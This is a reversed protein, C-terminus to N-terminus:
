KQRLKLRSLLSNKLKYANRSIHYSPSWVSLKGKAYIPHLKINFFDQAYSKGLKKNLNALAENFIAAFIKYKQFNSPSPIIGKLLFDNWVGKYHLICAEEDIQGDYIHNLCKCSFRKVKYIKSDIGIEYESEKATSYCLLQWLSMQDTGSYPRKLSSSMKEKDSFIKLTEDKWKEFFIKTKASFKALIVGSNIPTKRTTDDTIAIDFDYDFYKELPSRVITDVDIICIKENDPFDINQMAYDIVLTKSSVKQAEDKSFDFSTKILNLDEFNASIANLKEASIDQWLVTIKSDPNSRKISYICSLLYGIYKEGYNSVIFHM